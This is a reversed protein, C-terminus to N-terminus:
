GMAPPPLNLLSAGLLMEGPFFEGVPARTPISAPADTLRFGTDGISQEFQGAAHRDVIEKFVQAVHSPFRRASRDISDSCAGAASALSCLLLQFGIAAIVLGPKPSTRRADPHQNAQHMNSQHM